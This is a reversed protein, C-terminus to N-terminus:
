RCRRRPAKGGPAGPEGGAGEASPTRGDPGGVGSADLVESWQERSGRADHLPRSPRRGAFVMLVLGLLLLGAVLAGVLGGVLADGYYEGAVLVCPGDCGAPRHVDMLRGFEIAWGLMFGVITAIATPLVFKLSTM